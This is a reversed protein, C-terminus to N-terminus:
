ALQANHHHLEAPLADFQCVGNICCPIKRGFDVKLASEEEADTGAGGGRGHAIAICANVDTGVNFIRCDM